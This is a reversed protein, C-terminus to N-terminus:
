SRANESSWLIPLAPKGSVVGRRVYIHRLLGSHVTEDYVSIHNQNVYDMVAVKVRDIQEPLILCRANEVVTHTGAKFFGAYARGKQASVPYQAKNRYGHCDPASLIPVDTLHEGALRNLCDRVRAAKLRSEEAYDMHWFDCGGCLKAVPCERNVRHPSKELIEVIKGSAWTKGVKEIRLRVREGAIANPLFVACGDVHAVGQGESTYDTIVAEYCENKQLM